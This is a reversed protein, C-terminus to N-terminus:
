YVRELLEPTYPKLEGWAGRRVIQPWDPNAILARGIAILDFDGRALMELARDIRMTESSHGTLSEIMENDLSVSGVTITPIGTVKRTWGALNLDSGDFEPEWFRRSSCDFMDIGADVIPRLLGELEQPSNALRASFDHLKWQSFRLVIPFDSSTRARIEAVVDAAFTARGELTGGYRDERFNTKDWLFQDILYGHAGHLAVGDFGMKYASVASTAYADIVAGIETGTMPKGKKEPMIYMGGVMGSPGCQDQAPGSDDFFGKLAPKLMLGVHWLQPMIRCGAAHVDDLVKTWGALPAEDYFRPINDDYHAARHPIRVGETMILGVGNAARRRYWARMEESPIGSPSACRTMPAMVIRNPVVLHKLTFPSFLVDMGASPVEDRGLDTEMHM